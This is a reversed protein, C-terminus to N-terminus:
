LTKFVNKNARSKHIQLIMGGYHSIIKELLDVVIFESEYHGLEIVNLKMASADRAVNYKIDGTIYVDAGKEKAVDILDGGSGTCLAVKSVLADPRGIFRIFPLRYIRKIEEAFEKLTFKYPLVGIRGIGANEEAKLPETENLSLFQAALDNLGGITSDLNTHAAYVAIKNEALFLLCKGEPSDATINKIPHFILPHHSIILQAGLAKAEMAVDLDVDLSLLITNVEATKDGLMLGVNDYSAALHLPAYQEIIDTIEHIQM